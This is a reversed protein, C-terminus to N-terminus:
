SRLRHIIKGIALPTLKRAKWLHKIHVRAAQKRRIRCRAESRLLKVTADMIQTVAANTDQTRKGQLGGHEDTAVKRNRIGGYRHGRKHLHSPADLLALLRGIVYAAKLEHCLQGDRLDGEGEM